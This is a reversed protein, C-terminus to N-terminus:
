WQLIIIVPVAVVDHGTLGSIAHQGFAVSDPNAFVTGIAGILLLWWFIDLDRGFHSRGLIGRNMTVSGLLICITTVENKGLPPILPADFSVKQPLFLIGGLLTVLLAVQPRLTGFAVLSLPLM